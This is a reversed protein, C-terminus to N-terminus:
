IANSVVLIGQCQVVTPKFLVQTGLLGAAGIVGGLRATRTCMSLMNGSSKPIAFRAVLTTM